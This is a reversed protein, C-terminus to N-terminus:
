QQVNKMRVNSKVGFKPHMPLTLLLNPMETKDFYREESMKQALCSTGFLAVFTVITLIRNSNKM